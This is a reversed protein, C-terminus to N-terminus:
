ALLCSHVTIVEPHFLVVMSCLTVIIFQRVLGTSCHCSAGGTECTFQTLQFTKLSGNTVPSNVDSVNFVSM